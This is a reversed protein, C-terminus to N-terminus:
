KLLRKNVETGEFPGFKTSKDGIQVLGIEYDLEPFKSLEKNVLFVAQHISHAYRYFTKRPMLYSQGSNRLQLLFDPEGIYVPIAYKKKEKKSPM